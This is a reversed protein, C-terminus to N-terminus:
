THNHRMAEWIRCRRRYIRQLRPRTQRISSHSDWFALRVLFVFFFMSRVFVHWGQQQHQMIGIIFYLASRVAKVATQRESTHRETAMIRFYCQISCLNEIADKVGLSIWQRRRWQVEMCTSVARHRKEYNVTHKENRPATARLICKEVWRAATHPSASSIFMKYSVQCASTVILSLIPSLYLALENTRCIYMRADSSLDLRLTRSWRVANGNLPLLMKVKGFAFKNRSRFRLSASVRVIVAGRMPTESNNHLHSVSSSKRVANRKRLCLEEVTYDFGVQQPRWWSLLLITNEYNQAGHRRGMSM